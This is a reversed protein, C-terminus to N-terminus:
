GNLLGNQFHIGSKVNLLRVLKELLYIRRLILLLISKLAAEHEFQSAQQIQDRLLQAKYNESKKLQLLSTKSFKLDPISITVALDSGYKDTQNKGKRHLIYQKVEVKYVETNGVDCNRRPKALVETLRNLFAEESCPRGALWKRTENQIEKLMVGLIKDVNLNKQM